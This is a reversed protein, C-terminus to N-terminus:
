LFFLFNEEYILFESPDPPFDYMVSARRMSYIPFFKRMKEYILFSKRVYSKTGSGMQIEKYILFTKNDTKDNYPAVINVVKHDLDLFTFSFKNM